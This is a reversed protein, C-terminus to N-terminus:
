AAEKELEEVRRRAADRIFEPMNTYGLKVKIKEIREALEKPISVTTYPRENIAM